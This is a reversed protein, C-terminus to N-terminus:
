LFTLEWRLERAIRVMQKVLEAENIAGGRLLALPIESCQGPYRIRLDPLPLAREGHLQDLFTSLDVPALYADQECTLRYEYGPTALLTRLLRVNPGQTLTIIEDRGNYLLTEDKPPAAAYQRAYTPCFLHPIVLYKSTEELILPSMPREKVYTIVTKEALLREILAHGVMPIRPLDADSLLTLFFGYHEFYLDNQNPEMTALFMNTGTAQELVTDRYLKSELEARFHKIQHKTGNLQSLERGQKWFM